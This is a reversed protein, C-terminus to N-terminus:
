RCDGPRSVTATIEAAIDMRAPANMRGTAVVAQAIAGRVVPVVQVLAGRQSVWLGVAAVALVAAVLASWKIIPKM